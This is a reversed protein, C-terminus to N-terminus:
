IAKTKGTFYSVFEEASFSFTVQLFPFKSLTSIHFLNKSSHSFLNALDYVCVCFEIDLLSFAM